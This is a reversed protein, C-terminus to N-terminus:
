VRLQKRTTVTLLSTEPIVNLFCSVQNLMKFKRNIDIPQEGILFITIRISRLVTVIMMMMM